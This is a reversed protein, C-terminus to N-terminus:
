LAFRTMCVLKKLVARGVDIGEDLSLYPYPVISRGEDGKKERLGNMGHLEVSLTIKASWLIEASTCSGRPRVVPRVIIIVVTIGVVGRDQLIQTM